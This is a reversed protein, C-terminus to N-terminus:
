RVVNWVAEEFGEPGESLDLSCLCPLMFDKGKRFLVIKTLKINPKQLARYFRTEWGEVEIYSGPM